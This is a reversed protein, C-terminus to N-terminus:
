YYRCIVTIMYPCKFMYNYKPIIIKSLPKVLCSIVSKEAFLLIEKNLFFIQRGIGASDERGPLHLITTNHVYHIKSNTLNSRNYLRRHYPLLLFRLIPTVIICIVGFKGFFSCKKGGSVCM